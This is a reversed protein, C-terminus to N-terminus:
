PVNDMAHPLYLYQYEDRQTGRALGRGWHMPKGLQLKAFILRQGEVRMVDTIMAM